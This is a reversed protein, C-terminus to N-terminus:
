NWRHSCSSIELLLTRLTIIHPCCGNQEHGYVSAKGHHVLWDTENRLVTETSKKKGQHRRIVDTKSVFSLEAQASLNTIHLGMATSPALDAHQQCKIVRSQGEISMASAVTEV